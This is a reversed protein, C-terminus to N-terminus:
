SRKAKRKARKKKPRKKPKKKCTISFSKLKYKRLKRHSVTQLNVATYHPSKELRTMFDAVTQNDLAIGKIIIRRGKSTSQLSTLWMKKEIVYANISDLFVIPWEQGRKLSNIQNTKQKLLNLERRIRNIEQIKKRYTKLEQQVKDINTELEEIQGSLRSNYGVLAIASFIFTLVFISVQRRINEKKRAARFPLLNIRIM